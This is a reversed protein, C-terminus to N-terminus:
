KKPVTSALIPVLIVVFVIIAAVVMCCLYKRSKKTHKKAAKLERRGHEVFKVSTQVNTLIQDLVEGQESVLAALDNFMDNLERLSREIRQVDNRTEMIQALTDKSQQFIADDKGEQLAQRAMRDAEEDTITTGDTNTFKLKIQRKTEAQMAKENETCVARYDNMAQMFQRTLHAHQNEQIRITAANSERLEDSAGLAKTEKELEDLNKKVTKAAAGIESMLRDMEPSMTGQRDIARLHEASKLRLENTKSQLVRNATQIAEVIRFCSSM